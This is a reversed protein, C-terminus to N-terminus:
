SACPYCSPIPLDKQPAASSGVAAFTLALVLLAMIKKM